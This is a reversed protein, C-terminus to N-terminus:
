ESEAATFYFLGLAYMRVRLPSWRQSHGMRCIGILNRRGHTAHQSHCAAFRGPLACSASNLGYIICLNTKKYIYEHTNGVFHARLACLFLYDSASLATLKTFLKKRGLQSVGLMNGRRQVAPAANSAHARTILGRPAQHHWDSKLFLAARQCKLLAGTNQSWPPYNITKLYTVGKDPLADM